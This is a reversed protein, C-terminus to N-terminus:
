LAEREPEEKGRELWVATLDKGCITLRDGNCMRFEVHTEGLDIERRVSVREVVGWKLNKLFSLM